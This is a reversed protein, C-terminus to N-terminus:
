AFIRPAWAAFASDFGPLIWSRYSLSPLVPKYLSNFVVATRFLAWSMGLWLYLLAKAQSRVLYVNGILLKVKPVAWYLYL